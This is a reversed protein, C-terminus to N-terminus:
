RAEAAPALDRREFLPTWERRHALKEGREPYSVARWTWCSVRLNSAQQESPASGALPAQAPSPSPSLKAPRPTHAQKARVVRAVEEAVARPLM